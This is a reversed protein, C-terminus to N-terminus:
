DRNLNQKQFLLDPVDIETSDEFIIKTTHNKTLKDTLFMETPRDIGLVKKFTKFEAERIVKGSDTMYVAKLPKNTKKEIWYEVHDYTVLKGEIAKLDLVRAVKGNLKDDRVYTAEYNETFNLRAVDGYAANGAIRQRPSIRIPKATSPVYVWMDADVMLVKTGKESQPTLFKILAKDRGKIMTEYTREDLKGKKNDILKISSKYDKQPNRIEEAKRVLDNANIKNKKGAGFAPFSCTALCAAFIWTKNSTLNM